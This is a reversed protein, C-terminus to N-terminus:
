TFIKQKYKNYLFSIILLLVGLAVFVITKSITDLHTIDYFFLKILTVAFLLIALIRVHKKNKWIGFAILILSYVGWFISLALKYSEKSEGIALWQLLESSAIWCIAVITIIEFPIKFDTKIFDRLVFKWTAALIIGIFIISIYRILLYNVGVNSLMSLDKMLYSDRLESLEFLAISLFFFLTVL